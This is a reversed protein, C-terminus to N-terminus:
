VSDEAGAILHQSRNFGADIKFLADHADILTATGGLLDGELEILKLRAYNCNM